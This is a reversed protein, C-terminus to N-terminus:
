FYACKVGYAWLSNHNFHHPCHVVSKDRQDSVQYTSDDAIPPNKWSLNTENDAQAYTFSICNYTHNAFLQRM